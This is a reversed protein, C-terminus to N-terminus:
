LLWCRLRLPLLYLSWLLPRFPAVICFFGGAFGVPLRRSLAPAVTARVLVDGSDSFVTVEEAPDVIDVDYKPADQAHVGLVAAAMVAAAAARSFTRM